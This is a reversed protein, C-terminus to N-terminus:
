TPGQAVYFVSHNQPASIAVNPKHGVNLTIRAQGSLGTSDTVRATIVHTGPQLHPVIISAGTGLVGDLNSTWQIQSSLDGSEADTATGAFTVPAGINVTANPAPASNNVVSSTSQDHTLWLQTRGSAAQM